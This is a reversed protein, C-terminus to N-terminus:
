TLYLILYTTILTTFFLAVDGAQIGFPFLKKIGEVFITIKKRKM